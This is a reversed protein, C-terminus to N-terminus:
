RSSARPAANAQGAGFLDDISSNSGGYKPDIYNEVFALEKTWADLRHERQSFGHLENPYTFYFFTKRSKIRVGQERIEPSLL